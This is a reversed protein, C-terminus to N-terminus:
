PWPRAGHAGSGGAQGSPRKAKSLHDLAVLLDGVLGPLAERRGSVEVSHGADFPLQQPPTREEGVGLAPEAIEVRALPCSGTAPQVRGAGPHLGRGGRGALTECGRGAVLAVRDLPEIEGLPKGLGDRQSAPVQMRHRLGTVAELIHEDTHAVGDGLAGLHLAGPVVELSEVDGSQCGARPLKSVMKTFRPSGSSTISRECVDGTWIRTISTRLGGTYMTAGPRVKRVSVASAM